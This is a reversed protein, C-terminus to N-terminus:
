DALLKDTLFKTSFRNKNFILFLSLSLETYTSKTVQFYGGVSNIYRFPHLEMQCKLASVPM